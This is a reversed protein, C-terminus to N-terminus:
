TPLIPVQCLHAHRLSHDPAPQLDLIDQIMLYSSSNERNKYRNIPRTSSTTQLFWRRVQTVLTEHIQDAGNIIDTMTDAQWSLQLFKIVSDLGPYRKGLAQLALYSNALQIVSHNLNGFIANYENIALRYSLLWGEFTTHKDIQSFHTLVKLTHRIVVDLHVRQFERRIITLVALGIRDKACPPDSTRLENIHGRILDHYRFTKELVTTILDQDQILVSDLDDSHNGTKHNQYYSQYTTVLLDPDGEQVIIQALAHFGKNAFAESLYQSYRRLSAYDTVKYHKTTNIIEKALESFDKAKHIKPLSVAGRSPTSLFNKDSGFFADHRFDDTRSDM